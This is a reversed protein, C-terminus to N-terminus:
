FINNFFDILKNFLNKNTKRKKSYIFDTYIETGDLLVQIKGVKENSKYNDNKKNLKVIVKIKDLEEEKLPYSFSNIVYLKDKFYNDTVNFNDKDIIKYKKYNKFGYDYLSIHTDYENSDNLTVATLNLYNNSATTVLTRGASPTYGTKGGTAYKYKTLLKNRNYWIYSKNSGNIVWKKTGSIKRYNMNNYAYSSLLAMDYATSYNKTYEDLGHCNEYITNKMGIEKAKKNMLSVFENESKSVNNALVVAADNGSRLLLGYLLNRITMKENLEIYINSGYMKLIEDKAEIIEELNKKNEITVIATMIKTTSAILRKDSSNNEYLVRGSDIDMLISSKSTDTLGCIKVPYFCMILLLILMTKKM